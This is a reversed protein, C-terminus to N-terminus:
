KFNLAVNDAINSLLSPQIFYFLIFIIAVALSFKIGINEVPDYNDVPQDFYIVKIVRLYYFASIVASILGIVALYYIKQEIISSIIYFKAFFGALPPIGALSFMLMSLSFAVVPHNKSLGSLDSIKEFYAGKRHLCMICAFTGINMLVYIFVYVLVASLSQKTGVALGALIFGIHGISSFAMLRKINNQGIAAVASLIMSAISIVIIIAKWDAYFNAYPIHLFRILAALAAIKPAMAFFTTVSTPSGEYVDPAWMHFPVASIKFAIGCLIFVLGFKLADGSTLFSNAIVYYDTSGTFGYVLSCGYLLLGSSLSGLVFYKLGAESSKVSTTNISALIYLCLSQLELGLYFIILNNASIMTFMGVVSFLILISYEFRTLSQNRLYQSSILNTFIVAILVTIKMFNSLLDVSYTNNFFNQNDKYNVGIIGILIVLLVLIFNNILKQSNKKFVGLMLLGLSSIILAFEPILLNM